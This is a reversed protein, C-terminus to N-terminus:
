PNLAPADIPKRVRSPRSDMEDLKHLIADQSQALREQTEVVKTMTKDFNNLSASLDDVFKLHKAVVPVGVHTAFWKIAERGFWILAVILAIFLGFDKALSTFVSPPGMDTM